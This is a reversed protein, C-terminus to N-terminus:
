GNLHPLYCMEIPLVYQGFVVVGGRTRGRESEERKKERVSVCARECFNIAAATCQPRIAWHSRWVARNMLRKRWVSATCKDAVAILVRDSESIIYPAFVCVHVWVCVYFCEGKTGGVCAFLSNDNLGTDGHPAVKNGSSRVFCWNILHISFHLSNPAPQPWMIHTHTTLAAESQVWM